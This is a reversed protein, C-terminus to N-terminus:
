KSRSRKMIQNMTNKKLEKEMKIKILKRVEEEEESEKNEEEESENNSKNKLYSKSTSSEVKKTKKQTKKAKGVLLRENHINSGEYLVDEEGSEVQNQEEAKKMKKAEKKDKSKRGKKKAEVIMQEKENDSSISRVDEDDEAENHENVNEFEAQKKADGRTFRKPSEKGDEKKKSRKPTNLFPLTEINTLVEYTDDNQGADDENNTEDETEAIVKAQKEARKEIAKIYCGWIQIAASYQIDLPTLLSM